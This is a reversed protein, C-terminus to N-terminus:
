ACGRKTDPAWAYLLGGAAILTTLSKKAEETLAREAAFLARATIRDTRKLGRQAAALRQFAEAEALDRLWAARWFQALTVSPDNAPTDPLDPYPIAEKAM